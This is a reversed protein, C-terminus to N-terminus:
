PCFELSNGKSGGKPQSIRELFHLVKQVRRRRMSRIKGAVASQEVVQKRRFKQYSYKRKIRNLVKKSQYLIYNNNELCLTQNLVKRFIQNKHFLTCISICIIWCQLLLKLSWDRIICLIKDFNLVVEVSPERSKLELFIWKWDVVLYTSRCIEFWILCLVNIRKM